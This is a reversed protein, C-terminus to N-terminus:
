QGLLVEGVDRDDSRGRPGRQDAAAATGPYRPVGARGFAGGPPQPPPPRPDCPGAVGSVPATSLVTSTSSACPAPTVHAVPSSRSPTTTGPSRSLVPALM